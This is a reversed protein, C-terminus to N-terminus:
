EINKTSTGNINGDKGTNGYKEVDKGYKGFVKRRLMDVAGNRAAGPRDGGGRQAKKYAQAAASLESVGVMGSGDADESPIPSQHM